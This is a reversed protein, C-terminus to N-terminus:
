LGDYCSLELSQLHPCSSALAHVDAASPQEAATKHLMETPNYRDQLPKSKFSQLRPLQKGTPFMRQWAGVPFRCGSLHLSQLASSATLSFYASPTPCYLGSSSIHLSSLQQMSRLAQLLPLAQQKSLGGVGQLDLNQLQPLAALVDPDISSSGVQDHHLQLKLKRLADQSNDAKSDSTDSDSDASSDDSAESNSDPLVATLDLHKLSTLSALCALEAAAPRITSYSVELKALQKCDALVGKHEAAPALQVQCGSLHLSQLNPCALAAVVGDQPLAQLSLSEIVYGYKDIWLSVSPTWQEARFALKSSAATCVGHFRTNILACAHLRYKLGFLGVLRALVEYPLSEM